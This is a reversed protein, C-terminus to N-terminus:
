VIESAMRSALTEWGEILQQVLPTKKGLMRRLPERAFAPHNAPDGARSFHKLVEWTVRHWKKWTAASLPPLGCLERVLDHESYAAHDRFHHRRFTDAYDHLMAVLRHVPASSDRPSKKGRKGLLAPVEDGQTLRRLYVQSHEDARPDRSILGPIDAWKRALRIAGPWEARYGSILWGCLYRAVIMLRAQADEAEDGNGAARAVLWEVGKELAAAMHMNTEWKRWEEVPFQLAHQLCDLADLGSQKMSDVTPFETPMGPLHPPSFRIGAAVFRKSEEESMEELAAPIRVQPPSGKKPLKKSAAGRRM